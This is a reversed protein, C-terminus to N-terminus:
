CHGLRRDDVVLSVGHSRALRADQVDVALMGIDVSAGRQSAGRDTGPEVTVFVRRGCRLFAAGSGVDAVDRRSALRDAPEVIPRARASKQSPWANM